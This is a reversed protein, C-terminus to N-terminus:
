LVKNNQLRERHAMDRQAKRPNDPHPELKEIPIMILQNETNMKFFEKNKASINLGSSIKKSNLYITPRKQATSIRKRKACENMTVEKKKLATKLREGLGEIM